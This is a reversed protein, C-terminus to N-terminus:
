ASAPQRDHTSYDKLPDGNVIDLFHPSQTAIAAPDMSEASGVNYNRVLFPLQQNNEVFHRIELEYNEVAAAFEGDAAALEGALVYAGVLAVSTGQGSMASPCFAADGVLAVRGNSWRDMRTQSMSDFYFDEAQWMSEILQPMIWQRDAAFYDAVIQKQQAKDRYDYDLDTALVRLMARSVTNQKAVYLLTLSEDTLRAVQWRDLGLYNPVSFIAAYNTVGERINVPHVYDAEPGFALKRVRSHLGDAGIVFDFSRRPNKEFAVEVGHATESLETVSDGFLYEVDDSTAEYLIQGLDDRLIEVDDNDIVGGSFTFESSSSIEVGAADLSSAGRMDTRQERIAELLGMKEVVDIAVARIDIAQGGTRTGDNREVLTVHFGYRNLWYAVAPGAISGGSVLVTTRSSTPSPIQNM